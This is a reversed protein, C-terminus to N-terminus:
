QKAPAPPKAQGAASSWPWLEASRVLGASVPNQEIYAVTRDIQDSRRLYHDYSEDQWFPRGSRNLIVNAGRATSGKLWRMLVALTVKPLILLHVHNPMVVWACLEYFNRESEGVRIADAVLEAIEPHRLWLPGSIQRHLARDHAVLAHGPTPYVISETQRPLSGWLRWTLFAYTDTPHFHPLRRRYDPMASVPLRVAQGVLSCHRCFKFRRLFALLAKCLEFRRAFFGREISTARGSAWRRFRVARGPSRRDAPIGVDLTRKLRLEPDRGRRHARTADGRLPGSGPRHGNRRHSTRGASGWAAACYGSLVLEECLSFGADPRKAALCTLSFVAGVPEDMADALKAADIGWYGDWGGCHGHGFYVCAGLGIGLASPLDRGTIVRAPWFLPSPAVRSAEEAGQHAREDWQALIAVPGAPGKRRCVAAAAEAFCALRSDVPVRGAVGGAAFQWFEGDAVEEVAVGRDRAHADILPRVARLAQKSGRVTWEAEPMCWSETRSGRLLTSCRRSNGYTSICSSRPRSSGTSSASIGGGRCGAGGARGRRHRRRHLRLQLGRQEDAGRDGAGHVDPRDPHGAVHTMEHMLTEIKVDAWSAFNILFMTTFPRQGNIWEILDVPPSMAAVRVEDLPVAVGFVKQTETHETASLPRYSGPFWELVMTLALALASGGLEAAAKLVDLASKGLSKLVDFVQRAADQAPQVIASNVVDKLTKGLAEFAKVLNTLANGPHAITDAVLDAMTTGAALLEGAVAQMAEVTRSAAWAVLDAVKAGAAIMGKVVGAIIPIADKEVWLLVDDVTHQARILVEGVLSLAAAGAAKAWDIMQSVVSGAADLLGIVKRMMADGAAKAWNLIQNVAQGAATLGGILERMALLSVDEAQAVLWDMVAGVPGLTRLVRRLVIFGQELASSLLTAAAKGAAIAANILGRALDFTSAMTARVFEVIGKGLDFFAKVAATLLDGVVGALSKFLKVATMGIQIAADIIKRVADIATQALQVILDGLARGADLVGRVVERVADIASEVVYAALDKLAGAIGAMAGAVSRIFNAGQAAVQEILSKFTHGLQNLTTLVTNLLGGPNTIAAVVIEAAARGIAVLGRVVAAALAAGFRIAQTLIEAVARGLQVLAQVLKNVADAAKGVLWGVLDAVTKGLELLARAVSALVNAAQNIASVLLDGIVKGVDLIGQVIKKLADYSAQLAGTVLDAITKGATLVARVFDKVQDAAWSAIDKVASAIAAAINGVANVVADIGSKVADVIKGVADTFDDWLNDHPVNEAPIPVNKTRLVTGASALWDAFDRAARDIVVGTPNMFGKMLLQGQAAPLLAAAHIVSMGNGGDRNAALIELRDADPMRSVQDFHLALQDHSQLSRVYAVAFADAKVRDAQALQKFAPTFDDVTPKLAVIQKAAADANQLNVATLKTTLGGM